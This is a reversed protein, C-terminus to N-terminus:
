KLDGIIRGNKIQYVRDSMKYVEAAYSSTYILGMGRKKADSIFDYICNHMTIDTGSFVNDLVVLKANAVLWKYLVINIQLRNDTWQVPQNLNRPNIGLKRVYEGVVFREMRANVGWKGSFQNLGAITLNQAVSLQPFLSTKYYGIYGIGQAIMAQEGGNTVIERGDLFIQGREIPEKGKLLNILAHCNNYGEDVFGVVEGKKLDFSLNHLNATCISSVTLLNGENQLAPKVSNIVFDTGVLVKQIREFENAYFFGINKGSRMVIIRGALELLRELKSDILIITILRSQIKKLLLSLRWYEKETYSLMIDDVIIVKAKASVARAIEILHKEALSLSAVERDSEIPIELEALINRTVRQDHRARIRWEWIRRPPLLCLNDAITLEPILTSKHRICYIGLRQAELISHYSVPRDEVYILGADYGRLGSLVDALISRGAGNLGALGLVEGRYLSLDMGNLVPVDFSHCVLQETRLVEDM